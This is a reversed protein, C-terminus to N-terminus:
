PTRSTSPKWSVYGPGKVFGVICDRKPTVPNNVVAQVVTRSGNPGTFTIPVRREGGPARSWDVSVAVRQERDITGRSPSVTLWPEASQASYEFATQGRNYIDIHYTQRSYPDFTPLV